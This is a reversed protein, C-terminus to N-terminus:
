RYGVKGETLAVSFPSAEGTHQPLFMEGGGRWVYTYIKVM